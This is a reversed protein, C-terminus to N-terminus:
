RLVLCFCVSVRLIDQLSCCYFAVWAWFPEGLSIFYSFFVLFHEGLIMNHFLM